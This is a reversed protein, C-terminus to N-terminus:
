QQEEEGEEGEEPTEQGEAAKAEVFAEGRVVALIAAVVEAGGFVAAGFAAGGDRWGKELAEECGEGEAM